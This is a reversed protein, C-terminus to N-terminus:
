YSDACTLLLLITSVPRSTSFAAEAVSIISFYYIPVKLASAITGAMLSRDHASEHVAASDGQSVREIGKTCGATSSGRM